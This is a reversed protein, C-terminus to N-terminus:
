LDLELGVPCHDSGLVEPDIWANRVKPVLDETVFFYDIRWGINRERARTMQDWWTYQHPGKDFLRLTDVYGREIIKDIWQREIALFGSISENQKPRALDIEQHATNYDGCIVLKKGQQRQTQWHELISEYFDMKYDLRTQDRKGNPFYINYLDFGPFETILVRGEIDFRSVEFGYRVSLPRQRTYTAVGSYGKREASFWYSEYGAIQSLREELQEKHAKTEQLCVVDAAQAAFWELFGKKQAARIGNVNWCLLKIM